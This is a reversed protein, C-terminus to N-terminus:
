LEFEMGDYAIQFGADLVARHEASEEDLIPNTNNIHILVRRGRANKPFQVLLGEPGSLPLHGIECATKKSRGTQILEDDSWFTGDILVLDASVAYKTWEANRGSLSPAVFASKGNQEFVFGVSAQDPSLTRAVDDGVYDPYSGGLPVTACVFAPAEGASESLHCGLRGKSLLTQWQVPPNSRELVSFIPNDKKLIRQVASTSFIFFTQFERLHLLGMVEDVDASPLFVGAVPSSGGDDQPFLEPTAVLQSRLDPSAGVLFWAKSDTSFAIQTQTRARGRLTGSRLRACNPCACNWQPFGGGAASGLVKLRM